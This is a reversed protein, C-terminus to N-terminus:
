FMYRDCLRHGGSEIVWASPSAFSAFETPNHSFAIGVSSDRTAGELATLRQSFIILEDKWNQIDAKFSEKQENSGSPHEVEM